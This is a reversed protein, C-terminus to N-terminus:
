YVEFVTLCTFQVHLISHITTYPQHDPYTHTPSHTKQCRGARTTGFLHGYFPQQTITLTFFDLRRILETWNRISCKRRSNRTIATMYINVNVPFIQAPTQFIEEILHATNRFQPFEFWFYSPVNKIWWRDGLLISMMSRNYQSQLLLILTSM